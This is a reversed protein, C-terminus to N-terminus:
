KFTSPTRITSPTSSTARTGRDTSRTTADTDPKRGALSDCGVIGSVLILALASLGLLRRM